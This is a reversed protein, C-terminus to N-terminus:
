DVVVFVVNPFTYTPNKDKDSKRDATAYEAFSEFSDKTLRYRTADITRAIVHLPIGFEAGINVTNEKPFKDKIEVITAYLRAYDYEDYNEGLTNTFTKKEIGIDAKDAPVLSPDMKVKFGKESIVVTLNLAHKEETEGSKAVSTGMRPAGVPIIKVEYFNFSFVLLPILMTIVAMLPVLNVVFATDVSVRSKKAM